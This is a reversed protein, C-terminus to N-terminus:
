GSMVVLDSGVLAAANEPSLPLADGTEIGRLLRALPTDIHGVQLEGRRVRLLLWFEGETLEYPLPQLESLLKLLKAPEHRFCIVKLAPNLRPPQSEGLDAREPESGSEEGAFQLWGAAVEFELVEELWPNRLDGSRIRSRLFAAFRDAEPLFQLITDPYVAWFAEAERRLDDGLIFCSRPLLEYLPTVRNVRYLTCNTSMGRQAVVAALRRRERPSLDYLALLANPDSALRRCLDPSAVLDCMAHQFGQLSM